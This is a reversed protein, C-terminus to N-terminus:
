PLDKLLRRLVKGAGTAPLQDIFRVERPAKYASMNDRSWAILAEAGVEQGPKKVIFARIVEGKTPDPVGIVAAQAVAPHKVLISEVQEPFVAYGSVKIMEKFRGTFTLYGDADLSGMDGTHVWGDRLTKATAEPKNWYGKFAGASRLVIEGQQGAPREAGSEPDLIRIENGPIPKGHTGWRIAEVPMYTDV